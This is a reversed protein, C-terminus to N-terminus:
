NSDHKIALADLKSLRDVELGLVAVKAIADDLEDCLQDRERRADQCARTSSKLQWNLGEIEKDAKVERLGAAKVVAKADALDVLARRAIDEALEAKGRAERVLAKLAQAELAGYGDCDLCIKLEDASDCGSGDCTPCEARRVKAVYVREAITAELSAIRERLYKNEARAAIDIRSRNVAELELELVRSSANDYKAIYRNALENAREIEDRASDLLKKM